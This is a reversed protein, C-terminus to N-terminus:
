SILCGLTSDIQWQQAIRRARFTCGSTSIDRGIREQRWVYRNSAGAHATDSYVTPRELRIVNVYGVRNALQQVEASDLLVFQVSDLSPLSSSSVIGSDKRVYVTRMPRFDPLGRTAVIYLVAAVVSDSVSLAPTPRAAAPATIAQQACAAVAFLLPLSKSM